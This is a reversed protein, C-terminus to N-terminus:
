IMPLKTPSERNWNETDRRSLCGGSEFWWTGINDVGDLEAIFSLCVVALREHRHGHGGVVQCTRRDFQISVVLM